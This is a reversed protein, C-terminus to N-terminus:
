FIFKLGFVVSRTFDVPYIANDYLWIGNSQDFLNNIKTFLEYNDKAYTISINTSSYPDQKQSFNNNFDEQAYASSRYLETISATTNSNPLYSLTIKGNHTSVGPLKNGAYNDNGQKEKDIIAQVYNYNAFINWQESILWQDSIDFGYKHSKDINTNKDITYTHDPYYYIENDLDVYYLSAKFKNSSHINNYGITYTNTKMPQIFGNFTGGMNFFRDIDPSEFAHSYHVFLSDQASLTYSYGSEIAYLTDDQSLNTNSALYEYSVKEYRGGATFTHKDIHFESSVYLAHNNKSATNSTTKREGWINQTGIVASFNSNDYDLHTNLQNYRYNSPSYPIYQSQKIERSGDVSLSYNKNISYMIGLNLVDSNVTQHTFYGATGLQAPNSNYEDLTMSAAYISDNKTFEAGGHVEFKDTPHYSLEIGGNTNKQIDRNGDNDVARSGGTDYHNLHLSYSYRDEFQSLYLSQGFTHYNGGYFSLENNNGQKTLINIVAANAGDGYVVSGAGKLIEIREITNIPISGLLQPAMDINNLRRGNLTVVINQYGTDGLAYGHIDLQQAFPNGLGQSAILSTEQNFFDYINKTHSKEIDKATYIEASYPANLENNEIANSTITIPQLQLTNAGLSAVLTASAVLSLTQKYM